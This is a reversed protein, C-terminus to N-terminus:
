DIVEVVPGSRGQKPKFHFRVASSNNTFDSEPFLHEPNVHDELVYDGEPVDTMQVFQCALLPVYQDAWGVKIGQNSGCSRYVAPGPEVNGFQFPAVDIVCFGQKRGVLLDGRQRAQELLTANRGANSPKSMDRKSVWEEYGAPTWLRYDAYEQFHLHQHCESFQFLGELCDHPDGVFLDTQGVNPTSSMFRLLLHTGPSTVCGERVTCGLPSFTEETVYIQARLFDRDVILDPRLPGIPIACPGLQAYLASGAFVLVVAVLLSRRYTQM